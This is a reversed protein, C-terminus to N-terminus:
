EGAGGVNRGRNLGLTFILELWADDNSFDRDAWAEFVERYTFHGHEAAVAGIRARVSAFRSRDRAAAQIEAGLDALAQRRAVDGTRTM